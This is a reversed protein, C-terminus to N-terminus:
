LEVGSTIFCDYVFHTTIHHHSSFLKLLGTNGVFMEGSAAQVEEPYLSLSALLAVDDAGQPGTLSCSSLCTDVKESDLM